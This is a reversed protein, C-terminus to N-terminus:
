MAASKAFSVPDSDASAQQAAMGAALAHDLATDSLSAQYLTFCVLLIGLTACGVVVGGVIGGSARRRFPGMSTRTMARHFARAQIRARAVARHATDRQVIEPRRVASVATARMSQELGFRLKSPTTASRAM